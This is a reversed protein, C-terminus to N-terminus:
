RKIILFGKQVTSGDGADFVYFYTGSPLDSGKFKGDWDNKYPAAEYVMSGWENFIALKSNNVAFDELCSIRLVDNVRDNNPTIINPISCDNVKDIDILVDAHACIQPCGAVCIQYTFKDFDSSGNPIYLITKDDQIEVSGNKVDNLIDLSIPTNFNDNVLVNIFGEGSEKMRFIDDLSTIEGPVWVIM